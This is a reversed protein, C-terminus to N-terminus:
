RIPLRDDGPSPVLGQTEPIHERPWARRPCVGCADGCHRSGRDSSVAAQGQHCVTGGACTGGAVGCHRSGCDPSVAQNQHCVIDGADGHHQSGCDSSIAQNQHCITDGTRVDGAAGCHWPGRDSSLACARGQPLVIYSCRRLTHVVTQMAM